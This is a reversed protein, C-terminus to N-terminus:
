AAVGLPTGVPEQLMRVLRMVAIAEDEAPWATPLRLEDSFDAAAERTNRARRYHDIVASRACTTLWGFARENSARCGPLRKWVREWTDQTLDEVLEPTVRNYTRSLFAAVYSAVRRAYLNYLTEFREAAQPTQGRGAIVDTM